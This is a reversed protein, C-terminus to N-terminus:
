RVISAASPRTPLESRECKIQDGAASAQTLRRRVTEANISTGM